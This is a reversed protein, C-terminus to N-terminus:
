PVRASRPPGSAARECVRVGGRPSAKGREEKGRTKEEEPERFLSLFLAPRERKEGEEPVSAVLSLSKKEHRPIPQWDRKRTVDRTM